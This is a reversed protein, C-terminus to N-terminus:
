LKYALKPLKYSLDIITDRAEDITLRDEAVLSALFRADMRRAMDHRAPISLFARTDDNFGVTNYFGASPTVQERFRLMGEPCDNFWWAPGLKLAPYHGAMPALERAYTTEDLTFLIISLSKENGFKDLLPKLAQVYETASPLDGGKDRGYKDFIFKNHNRCAGAHIQMVLGDELSMKAFETLMQASFQEADKADFNNALIKQYLTECQQPSLDATLATAHGHDSSTVGLSKFYARRNQHALLYSKFSGLDQNSLQGFLALSDNFDERSADVVNDPRYASIVRGKWGSKAIAKHHLLEDTPSETTSIVEINFREFLARPKFSDTALAQNIKDYYYDASDNDLAVEFNFVEAFVHNLWIYSATGRLLYFNQAFIRWAERPDADTQSHRNAIALKDLDIGQSYLMRFVYHDPALLLETANTFNANSSFWSPDTHGHPSIIPLDKVELYLERAITRECDISSFMRDEGLLIKPSNIVKAIKRNSITM